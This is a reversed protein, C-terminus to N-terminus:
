TDHASKRANNARGEQGNNMRISLLFVDIVFQAMNIYEEKLNDDLEEWPIDYVNYRIRIDRGSVYATKGILDRTERDMM